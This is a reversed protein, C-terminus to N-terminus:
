SCRPGSRTAAPGRPRPSTPVRAPSRWTTRIRSRRSTPSGAPSWSSTARTCSRPETPRSSASTAVSSRSSRCASRTASARARSAAGWSTRSSGVVLATLYERLEYSEVPTAPAAREPTLWRGATLLYAVGIATLMAAAPTIDFLGIRGLGADLALGAVLLNTSTGILTLTGGLQSSFSLPMLLRSPAVGATRGLGLVIPLLIAVAATNNIFASLPVTVALVVALVRLESKGALRAVSQGLV